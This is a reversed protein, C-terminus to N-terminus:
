IHAGDAEVMAKLRADIRTLHLETEDFLKEWDEHVEPDLWINGSEFAWFRGVSLCALCIQGMGTVDMGSFIPKFHVFRNRLGHLCGIAKDQLPTLELSKSHVYRRTYDPEPKGDKDRFTGPKCAHRVLELFSKLDDNGKLALRYNTSGVVLSALAQLAGHLGYAVWKWEYPAETIHSM